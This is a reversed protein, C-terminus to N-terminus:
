FRPIESLVELLNRDVLQTYDKELRNVVLNSLQANSHKRIFGQFRSPAIIVLRKYFHKLRGTELENVLDQAFLEALHEKPDTPMVFKGKGEGYRSKFRGSRYDSVLNMTKERSEPHEFQKILELDNGLNNSLYLKAISANAVLIWTTTDLLQAKM